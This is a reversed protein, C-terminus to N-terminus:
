SHLRAKDTHLQQSIYALENKQLPWMYEGEVWCAARGLVGLQQWICEKLISKTVLGLM